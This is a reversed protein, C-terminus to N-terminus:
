ACVRSMVVKAESASVGENCLNALTRGHKMGYQGLKGCIQNFNDINQKYCEWDNTVPVAVHSALHSAKNTLATAIEMIHKDIQARRALTEVLKKPNSLGLHILEADRNNVVGAGLNSPIANSVTKSDGLFLDIQEVDLSTEGYQMVHSGESFSGNQSVRDRVLTYQTEFTETRGKADVNEMWSVSYLDGLCTNFGAPPPQAMGPCYCGWSSEEANAATTAYVSINAPLTGEFISGSECAELYFVLQAFGKAAAKAELTSVIDKGYLYAEGEPMGLIGPGGHDAYFVFVKDNPGSAIVKGSGGVVNEKKGALVALFNTASVEAGTYDKPVGAYVDSGTPSNIVTGKKPNEENNAIDDYHMV